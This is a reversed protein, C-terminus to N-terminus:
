APTRGTQSRLGGSKGEPSEHIKWHLTVKTAVKNVNQGGPGASRSYSFVLEEPPITGSV